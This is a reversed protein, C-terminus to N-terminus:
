IASPQQFHWSLLSSLSRSSPWTSFFFGITPPALRWLLTSFLFYGLAGTLLLHGSLSGRRYKVVSFLLLPVGLFLAVADQGKYGAGIFLTDFQYLGQGYIQVPQDHLTTFTYPEGGQLFLGATAAVAAMVAVLSALLAVMKSTKMM